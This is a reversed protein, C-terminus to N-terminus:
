AIAETALVDYNNYVFSYSTDINEKALFNDFTQNWSDTTVLDNFMEIIEGDESERGLWYHYFAQMREIPPVNNTQVGNLAFWRAMTGLTDLGNDISSIWSDLETQSPNRGEFIEFVAEVKVRTDISPDMNTIKDLKQVYDGSDFDYVSNKELITRVSSESIGPHESKILAVHAAVRPASYSTGTWGWGDGVEYFHVTASGKNSWSYIDGDYQSYAGVIIPFISHGWPDSVADSAYDNGAAVTITTGSEWLFEGTDVYEKIVDDELLEDYEFITPYSVLNGLGWSANIVDTEFDIVAQKVPNDYKNEDLDEAIVTVEIEDNLFEGYFNQLVRPGHWTETQFRDLIVVFPESRPGPLPDQITVTEEDNNKHCAALLPLMSLPVLKKKKGYKDM